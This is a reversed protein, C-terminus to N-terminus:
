NTQDNKKPKTVFFSIPQNINIILFLIEKAEKFKIRIIRLYFSILLSLIIGITPLNHKKAFIIRSKLRITDSISSRKKIENNFTISQKHYVIAKDCSEIDFGKKQARFCLDADEYNLFFEPDWKKITTMCEKSVLLSAGSLYDYHTEKSIIDSTSGFFHNFSCGRLQIKNPTNMEYLTASIIGLNPNNRFCNVKEKICNPDIITDNNLFWIFEYDAINIASLGLNNGASFGLNEPSSMLYTGTTLTQPINDLSIRQITKKSPTILYSLTEPVELPPSSIEKAWNIIKNSSENQSGNDVILITNDVDTLKLLSEICATTYEWENYNIIITAIKTPKSNTNTM